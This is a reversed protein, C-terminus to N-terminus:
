ALKEFEMFWTTTQIEKLSNLISELTRHEEEKKKSQRSKTVIKQNNLLVRLTQQMIKFQGRIISEAFKAFWKAGINIKYLSVNKFFQGLFNATMQKILYACISATILVRLITVNTTRAALKLNNGSKLNKFCLELQWRIRYVDTILRARMKERSINTIMLVVDKKEESYFAVIRYNDGNSFQVDLDLNHRFEKVLKIADSVKMGEYSKETPVDSRLTKHRDGWIKCKKIVAACNHRAKTIFYSGNKDIKAFLILSQYGNDFLFLMPRDKDVIVFEKENATEATEIFSNLCGTRLSLCSQFGIGANKAKEYCPNGNEDFVDELLIDCQNTRAGPYMDELEGRLKFYTGDYLPIDVINQLGYSRIIQFLEEGDWYPHESVGKNYAKEIINKGETMFEFCEPESLKNWFPKNRMANGSNNVYDRNLEALSKLNSSGLSTVLSTFFDVPKFRGERKVFKVERAKRGIQRSFGANNFISSVRKATVYNKPQNKKVAQKQQTKKEKRRCEKEFKKEAIKSLRSVSNKAKHSLSAPM